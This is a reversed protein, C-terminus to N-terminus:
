KGAFNRTVSAPTQLQGVRHVIVCKSNQAATLERFRVACNRRAISQSTGPEQRYKSLLSPTTDRCHEPLIAQHVLAAPLSRGRRKPTSHGPSCNWACGPSTLLQKVLPFQRHATAPPQVLRVPLETPRPAVPHGAFPLRAISGTLQAPFPAQSPENRGCIAWRM